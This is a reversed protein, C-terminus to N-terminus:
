VLRRHVYIVHDMRNAPMFFWMFDQPWFTIWFIHFKRAPLDFWIAQRGAINLWPLLFYASLIPIWTWRRLDRFFGPLKRTQIRERTQYLDLVQIVDEHADDDKPNLPTKEENM